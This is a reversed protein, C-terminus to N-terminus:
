GLVFGMERERGGWWFGASAVGLAFNRGGFIYIFPVVDEKMSAPVHLGFIEIALLPRLFIFLSILLSYTTFLLALTHIHPPPM